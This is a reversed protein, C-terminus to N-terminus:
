QGTESDVLELLNLVYAEAEGLLAPYQDLDTTAKAKDHWARLYEVAEALAPTM